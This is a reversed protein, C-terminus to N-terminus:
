PPLQWIPIPTDRVPCRTDRTSIAAYIDPQSKSDIHSPWAAVSSLFPWTNIVPPEAALRGGLFRGLQKIGSSGAESGDTIHGNGALPVLRRQQGVARDQHEAATTTDATMDHM